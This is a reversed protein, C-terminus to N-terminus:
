YRVGKLVLIWGDCSTDEEFERKGQGIAEWEGAPGVAHAASVHSSIASTVGGDAAAAERARARDSAEIQPM